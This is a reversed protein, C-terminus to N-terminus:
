KVNRLIFENGDIQLAIIKKSLLIKLHKNTISFTFASIYSDEKFSTKPEDVVKLRLIEKDDLELFIFDDKISNIKKRTYTYFVIVMRNFEPMSSLNRLISFPLQTNENEYQKGITKIESKILTDKQFRDIKTICQSKATSLIFIILSISIVIKKM